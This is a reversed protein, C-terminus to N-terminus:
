QPLYPLSANPGVLHIWTPHQKPTRTPPSRPISLHRPLPESRRVPNRERVATPGATIHEPKIQIDYTTVLGLQQWHKEEGKRVFWGLLVVIMSISVLPATRTNIRIARARAVPSEASLTKMFGTVEVSGRM